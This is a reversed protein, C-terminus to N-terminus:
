ARDNQVANAKELHERCYANFEKELEYPVDDSIEKQLLRNNKFDITLLNDKIVIHRIANWPFSKKPLTNFLIGNGDIGIEAPFKVQKELLAAIIYFIGISIKHLPNFFWAIAIAFFGIRFYPRRRKGAWILIWWGTSFLTVAMLRYDKKYGLQWEEKAIAYLFAAISLLMLIHCVINVPRIINKRLTVVYDFNPSM